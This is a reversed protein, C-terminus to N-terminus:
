LQKEEFCPLIRNKQLLLSPGRNQSILQRLLLQNPMLNEALARIVIISDGIITLEFIGLTKAIRLGQWLVLAEAM